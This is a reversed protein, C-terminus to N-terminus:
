KRRPEPPLVCVLLALSAPDCCFGSSIVPPRVGTRFVVALWPLLKEVMFEARDLAYDIHSDMRAAVFFLANVPLFGAAPKGLGATIHLTVDGRGNNRQLAL